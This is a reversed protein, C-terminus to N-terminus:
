GDSGGQTAIYNKIEEVASDRREDDLFFDFEAVTRQLNMLDTLFDYVADTARQEADLAADQADLLDIISVTGQSYSDQVLDFNKRSATAAEQALEISPFSARVAHLNSRIGQEVRDR